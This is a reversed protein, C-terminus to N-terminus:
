AAKSWKAAEKAGLIDRLSREFGVPGWGRVRAFGRVDELGLKGAKFAAYKAPGLIQRQESAGLKGFAEVGTPGPDPATDDVDVGLERLSRTVPVPACRCNPHSAFRQSLPFVQGHMSWCFACTRSDLRANWRWAKVVDDNAQYAAISAGRYARLTETRAITLARVLSGGVDKRVERAIKRPNRGLALGSLLSRRAARAAEPGLEALLRSLPSEAVLAGVMQEVAESPLRNFAAAIRGEPLSAEVLRRAHQQGLQVAEVRDATIAGGAIRAVEAIQREIQRELSRLRDQRALWARNLTEGKTESEDADKALKDLDAKVQRWADAYAEMLLRATVRDRRLLDARFRDALDFIDAM